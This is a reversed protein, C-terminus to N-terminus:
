WALCGRISTWRSSRRTRRGITWATSRCRASRGSGRALALVVDAQSILKMAAKSGQYGLPRCWLPHSAPFSDNHLYSNCVPAHLLEALAVAERTAGSAIVGGGALIVPFKAQALLAAAADLATADGAGRGIRMPPSIAAQLDGYFYDRPINLQCPGMELM